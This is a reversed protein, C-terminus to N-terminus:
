RIVLRAEAGVDRLSEADRHVQGAAVGSLNAMVRQVLELEWPTLEALLAADALLMAVAGRSAPSLVAGAGILFERRSRDSTM